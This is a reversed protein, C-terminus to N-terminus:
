VLLRQSRVAPEAPLGRSAHRHIHIYPKYAGEGFASSFAIRYMKECRYIRDAKANIEEPTGPLRNGNPDTRSHMRDSICNWLRLLADGVRVGKKFSEVDHAHAPAMEGVNVIDPVETPPNDKEFDDPWGYVLLLFLEYHGVVACPSARRRHPPPHQHSTFAPYIPPPFELSSPTPNSL